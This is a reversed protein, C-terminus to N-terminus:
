GNTRFRPRVSHWPRPVRISESGSRGCPRRRESRAPRHREHVGEDLVERRRDDLPHVTEEAIGCDVADHEALAFRQLGSRPRRPRLEPGNRPTPADRSIASGSSRMHRSNPGRRLNDSAAARRRQLVAALGNRRDLSQFSVFSSQYIALCRRQARISRGAASRLRM